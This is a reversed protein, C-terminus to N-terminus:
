LVTKVLRNLCHTVQADICFVLPLYKLDLQPFVQVYRGIHALQNCVFSERERETLSGAPKLQFEAAQFHSKKWKHPPTVAKCGQQLTWLYSSDDISIPDCAAM